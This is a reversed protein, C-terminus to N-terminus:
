GKGKLTAYKVEEDAYGIEGTVYMAKAADDAAQWYKYIRLCEDCLKRRYILGASKRAECKRCFPIYLPKM